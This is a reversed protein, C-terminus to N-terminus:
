YKPIVFFLFVGISVALVVIALTLFSISIGRNVSDTRLSLPYWAANLASVGAREHFPELAEEFPDACAAAYPFRLSRYSLLAALSLRRGSYSDAM